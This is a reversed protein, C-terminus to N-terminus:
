VDTAAVEACYGSLENENAPAGQRQSGARKIHRGSKPPCPTKPRETEGLFLFRHSSSRTSQPVRRSGPVTAGKRAQRLERPTTACLGFNWADGIDSPMVGRLMALRCDLVRGVGSFARSPQPAM